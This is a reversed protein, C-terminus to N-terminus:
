YENEKKEEEKEITIEAQIDFSIMSVIKYTDGIKIIKKSDM